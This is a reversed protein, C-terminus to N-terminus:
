LPFNSFIMFSSLLGSFMAAVAFFNASSSFCYPGKGESLKGFERKRLRPFIRVPLLVHSLYRLRDLVTEGFDKGGVESGCRRHRHHQFDAVIDVRGVVQMDLRKRMVSM